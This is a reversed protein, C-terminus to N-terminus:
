AAGLCWVALPSSPRAPPPAEPRPPQPTYEHGYGLVEPTPSGDAREDQAADEGPLAEEGTAGGGFIQEPIALQYIPPSVPVIGSGVNQTSAYGISYLALIGTGAGDDGPPPLDWKVVAHLPPLNESCSGAAEDDEGIKFGVVTGLAGTGGDQDGLGSSWHAGREVRLGLRVNSATVPVCVLVSALLKGEMGLPFWRKRGDTVLDCEEEFNETEEDGRSERKKLKRQRLRCKWTGIRMTRATPSIQYGKSPAQPAADTTAGITGGFSSSVRRVFNSVENEEGDADGGRTDTPPSVILNASLVAEVESLVAEMMTEKENSKDIVVDLELSHINKDDCPLSFDTQSSPWVYRNKFMSIARSNSDDESEIEESEMPISHMFQDVIDDYPPARKLSARVRVMPEDDVLIAPAGIGAGLDQELGEPIIKTSGIMVDMGAGLDEFVGQETPIDQIEGAVGVPGQDIKQNSSGQPEALLLRENISNTQYQYVNIFAVSGKALAGYEYKESDYVRREGEAAEILEIEHCEDSIRTREDVESVMVSTWKRKEEESSAALEVRLFSGIFDFRFPTKGPRDAVDVWCGNRLIRKGCEDGQFTFTRRQMDYCCCADPWTDLMQGKVKVQLTGHMQDMVSACADSELFRPLADSALDQMTQELERNVLELAAGGQITKGGNRALLYQTCLAEAKATDESDLQKADLVFRLQADASPMERQLFSMFASVGKEMDLMQQITKTTDAMWMIKTWTDVVKKHRKLQTQEWQPNNKSSDSFSEMKLDENTFVTPKSKVVLTRPILKLLLGMQMLHDTLQDDERVEVHVAVCYHYLGDSDHVPLLALMMQFAEGGRKYNTCKVLCDKASQLGSVMLKISDPETKPGQLFRCNRGVVSDKRYGFAQEFKSNVHVLPVGPITMDSISIPVPCSDSMTAFTELWQEAFEGASEQLDRLDQVLSM